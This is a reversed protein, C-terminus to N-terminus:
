PAAHQARELKMVYKTLVDREVLGQEVARTLQAVKARMGAQEESSEAEAARRVKHLEARLQQLEEAM